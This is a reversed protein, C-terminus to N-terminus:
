DGIDEIYAMNTGVPYYIGQTNNDGYFLQQWAENLKQQIDSNSHGREAFLDPYNGTSSPMRSFNLVIGTISIIFILLLSILTLLLPLSSRRIMILIPREDKFLLIFVFRNEVRSM